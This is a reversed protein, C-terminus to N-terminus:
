ASPEVHAVGICARPVGGGGSRRDLDAHRGKGGDHLGDHDLGEHGKRGQLAEGRVAPLRRGFAHGPALLLVAPQIGLSLCVDLLTRGSEQIEYPKNEIFITPMLSRWPCRKEAIHREFDKRFYKLGSELSMMAGPALACFTNGDRLWQAHLDLVDLDDPLGRGEEISRLAKVVWPLGERCPTCWGCSERAFFLQLSHLMGVPCARDDLVIMTGTGLRIGPKKWRRLIWLRTLTSKWWSIGRLAARCRAASRAAELMGGAHEEIIERAPTGM